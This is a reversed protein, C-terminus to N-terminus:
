SGFVVKVEALAMDKVGKDEPKVATNWLYLSKLSKIEALFELGEASIMTGNLNLVELKTLNKLASIGSDTIPNNEIRLRHLNSFQSILSLDSDQIGTGALSLWFIQDKIPLLANLLESVQGRAAEEPLVIDLAGSEQSLIRVRFGKKELEMIRLTDIAAVLMKEAGLINLKPKAWKILEVDAEMLSIKPDANGKEIWWTILQIEEETLPKKGEAPMFDDHDSPLSVRRILESKEADAPIIVPGNEGGKLLSEYSSMNLEGKTKGERHCSQCKSKLVPQVVDTFVEAEEVSALIRGKSEEQKEGFPAYATLYDEGHTLSGGFHGTVFLTLMLLGLVSYNIKGSFREENKNVWWAIGSLVVTLWGAALHNDLLNGEYGGSQSLLYGLLAAILASVAGLFLTFNVAEQLNQKKLLVVYSKLLVGIMLFGIPLHVWVPHFRGIFTILDETM